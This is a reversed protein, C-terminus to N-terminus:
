MGGKFLGCVFGIVSALVVEAGMLWNVTFERTGEGCTPCRFAVYYRSLVSM